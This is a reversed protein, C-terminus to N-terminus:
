SIEDDSALTPSAIVHPVVSGVSTKAATDIRVKTTMITSGAKNVDFILPSGTPATTVGGRVSELTMAIPVRFTVKANGTTLATTEDSCVICFEVPLPDEEEAASWTKTSPISTM